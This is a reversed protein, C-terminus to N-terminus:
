RSNLYRGFENIAESIGVAFGLGELKEPALKMTSIGVVRGEDTLLPGGSNGPNIAADFQLLTLGAWKRRASVIGRTVTGRLGVPSGIAMVDSGVQITESDGIELAVSNSVVVQLLAM